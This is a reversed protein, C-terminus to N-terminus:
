RLGMMSVGALLYAMGAAGFGVYSCYRLLAAYTLEGSNSKWIQRFERLLNALGYFVLTISMALVFFILLSHLVSLLAALSYSTM